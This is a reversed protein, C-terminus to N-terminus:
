NFVKQILMLVSWDSTKEVAPALQYCPSPKNQYSRWGGGGKEKLSASQDQDNVALHFPNLHSTKLISGACKLGLIQAIWSARLGM